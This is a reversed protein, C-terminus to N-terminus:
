RVDRDVDRAAARERVALRANMKVQRRWKRVIKGVRRMAIREQRNLCICCTGWRCPRPSVFSLRLLRLSSHSLPM